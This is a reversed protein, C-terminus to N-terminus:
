STQSDYKISTDTSDYELIEKMQVNHKKYHRKITYSSKAGDMIRFWGSHTNVEVPVGIRRAGAVDMKFKAVTKM